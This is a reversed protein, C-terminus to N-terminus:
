VMFWRNDDFSSILDVRDYLTTLTISGLGDISNNSAITKTGGGTNIITVRLGGATILPMTYTQAGARALRVVSGLQDETPNSDANTDTVITNKIPKSLNVAGSLTVASTASGIQIDGTTLTNGINLTVSGSTPEINDTYIIGSAGLTINKAIALGGDLQVSGTNVNGRTIDDTGNILISGDLGVSNPILTLNEGGATGGRIVQGGSQGASLIDGSGGGGGGGSNIASRWVTGDHWVWDNATWTSIGDLTYTGSTTVRYYHGQVGGSGGSTLTITSGTLPTVTGTIGNFTGKYVLANGIDSEIHNIQTQLVTYQNHIHNLYNSTDNVQQQGNLTRRNAM